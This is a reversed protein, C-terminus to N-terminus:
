ESLPCPSSPAPPPLVSSRIWLSRLDRTRQEIDPAETIETVMAILRAGSELLSPIHHKKIGGMVSFPIHLLPATKLLIDTGLPRVPTQKTGTPFLPGLNVYDAGAAEAELAQATSHTSRGILLDPSIFRAAETPLDSQGLHVGDARCYAAIDVHDNMIMLMGYRDCLKRFQLALACLDRDPLGKERLQVIKAGGQGVADLVELVSRGATFGSTIVPYLDAERLRAAREERLSMKEFGRSEKKGSRLRGHSVSFDIKDQHNDKIKEGSDLPIRKLHKKIKNKKLLKCYKGSSMSGPM